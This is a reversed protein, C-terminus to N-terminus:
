EDPTLLFPSMLMNNKEIKILDFYRQCKDNDHLPILTFLLSNTIMKIISLYEQGYKKVIYNEFYKVMNDRYDFPMCKDLMIEDYGILSQYIKGYDYFIDGYITVKDGIKGRVDILKIKNDATLFCNSFVPDGHIVGIKGKKYSNFYNVLSHYVEDAGNFKSYDYSHYRESIKKAYLQYIDIDCEDCYNHIDHLSNLLVDLNATTLFQNTYLHSFNLGNIKEMTFSNDNYSILTVYYKKLEDPLSLYYNIESKINPGSKTVKENKIEINNFSREKVSQFYFGTEKEIDNSYFNLAKDDIYFDAYPKGFYLEDYPIEFNDLTDLTIKGVDKIIKGVDGCHTKMRRATHIIITHGLKKLCQLYAINTKIPLVTTYDKDVVPSTVLTNDLDFCIRLKEKTNGAKIVYTYLQLPTGVCHYNEKNIIVAEFIHGDNIMEMVVCSTYFENKVTINLDIVRSSYKKLDHMNNFFYVGTNAYNTIKNKEAIQSIIKDDNFKIYSYIPKDGDDEFSVIANHKCLRLRSIIDLSYFNDCDLLVTQRDYYRDSIYSIGTFITEAAGRTQFNLPILIVDPYKTKILSSFAFKEFENKYIIFIKDDNKINLCELLWFIMEKGFIKILPKPHSYSVDKFREGKGGIPIVINM